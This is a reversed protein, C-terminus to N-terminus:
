NDRLDLGAARVGRRLPAHPPNNRGGWEQLHGAYDTNVLRVQDGSKDVVVTDQRGRRMWPAGAADAFRAAHDRASEALKALGAQYAAQREIQERLRPNARFRTM